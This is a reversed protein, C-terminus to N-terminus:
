IPFLHYSYHDLLLSVGVLPVLCNLPQSRRTNFDIVPDSAQDVIENVKDRAMVVTDISCQRSCGAAVDRETADIRKCLQSSPSGMLTPSLQALLRNLRRISMTSRLSFCRGAKSKENACSFLPLLLYLLWSPSELSLVWSLM